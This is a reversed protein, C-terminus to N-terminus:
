LERIIFVNYNYSDEMSFIKEIWFNCFFITKCKLIHSFHLSGIARLTSMDGNKWFCAKLIFSANWRSQNGFCLLALAIATLWCGAWAMASIRENRWVRAIVTVLIMPLAVTLPLVLEVGVGKMAFLTLPLAFGCILGGLVGGAILRRDAFLKELRSRFIVLMILTTLGYGIIRPCTAFAAYVDSRLRQRTNLISVPIVTRSSIWSIRTFCAHKRMSDAPTFQVCVAYSLPKPQMWCNLLTNRLSWPTVGPLHCLFFLFPM